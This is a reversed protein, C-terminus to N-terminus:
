AKKRPNRWFPTFVEQRRKPNIAYENKDGRFLSQHLHTLCRRLRERLVLWKKTM